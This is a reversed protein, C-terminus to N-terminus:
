ARRRGMTVERRVIGSPRIITKGSGDGLVVYHESFERPKWTQTVVYEVGFVILSQGILDPNPDEM